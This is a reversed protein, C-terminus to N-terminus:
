RTFKIGVMWGQPNYGPGYQVVGTAAGHWAGGTQASVWSIPTEVGASGEGTAPESEGEPVIAPEPESAPTPKPTPKPPKVTVSSIENPPNGGGAPPEVMNVEIQPNNTPTTMYGWYNGNQDYIHAHGTTPDIFIWYGNGV